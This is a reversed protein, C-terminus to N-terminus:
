DKSNQGDKELCPDCVCAEEIYVRGDTGYWVSHKPIENVTLADCIVCAM